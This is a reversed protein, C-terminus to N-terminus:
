APKVNMALPPEGPYVHATVAPCRGAPSISLGSPDSDPVGVLVPGTVKVTVAVSLAWAGCAFECGKM